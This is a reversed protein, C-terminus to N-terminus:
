IQVNKKTSIEVDTFNLALGHIWPSEINNHMTIYPGRPRTHTHGGHMTHRMTLRKVEMQERLM